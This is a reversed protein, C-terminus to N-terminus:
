VQAAIKGIGGEVDKGLDLHLVRRHKGRLSELDGLAQARKL